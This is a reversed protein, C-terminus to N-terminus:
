NPGSADNPEGVAWNSFTAGGNQGAIAGEGNIWSWDSTSSPANTLQYGGIWVSLSPAVAVRLSEIFASEEASGITALHGHVNNFTSQAANLRAQEWLLHGEAVIEYYHGNPGLSQGHGKSLSLVGLLAIATKLLLNAKKM